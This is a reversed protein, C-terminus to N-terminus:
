VAHEGRSPPDYPSGDAKSVIEFGAEEYTQGPQVQGDIVPHVHKGRRFDGSDIEYERGDKHHIIVQPM